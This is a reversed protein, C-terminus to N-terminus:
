VGRQRADALSAVFTAHEETALGREITAVIAPGDDALLALPDLWLGPFTRSRYLGDPGPSIQVLRDGKRVHWLVDEPEIAVVVYERTGAREYAALKAGLDISRSGDAVEVVLEPAGAIIDDVIRTQGGRDPLTRLLVDPHVESSDDLATSAHLGAEVGPTAFKYKGLSGGITANLEAHRFGVRGKLYVIGGILEARFDPSTTKYLEHFERRGLRQGEFFPLGKTSM